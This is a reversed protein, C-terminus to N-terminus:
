ATDGNRRVIYLIIITACVVANTRACLIYAVAHLRAVPRARAGIGTRAQFPVGLRGPVTIFLLKRVARGYLTHVIGDIGVCKINHPYTRTSSNYTYIDNRNFSSIVCRVIRIRDVRTNIHAPNCYLLRTITRQPLSSSITIM